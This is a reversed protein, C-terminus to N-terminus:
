ADVPVPPEVGPSDAAPDGQVPGAGRAPLDPRGFRVVGARLRSAGPSGAPADVHVRVRRQRYQGGPRDPLAARLLSPLGALPRRDPRAAAEKPARAGDFNLRAPIRLVCVQESHPFGGFVTLRHFVRHYSLSSNLIALNTSICTSEMRTCMGLPCCATIRFSFSVSRYKGIQIPM